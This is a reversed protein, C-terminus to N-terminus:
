PRAAAYPSQPSAIPVRRAILRSVRPRVGCLSGAAAPFPQQRYGRVRDHVALHTTARWSRPWIRVICSNRIHRSGYSFPGCNGRTTSIAGCAHPRPRNPGSGRGSPGSIITTRYPLAQPPADVYLGGPLGATRAQVQAICDRATRMPHKAANLRGLSQRYAPLPLASMVLVAVIVKTGMRGAGAALGFVVAILLPRFVGSSKFVDHTEITIRIPGRVLTVIAIGVATVAVTLLLVRVAPRRGAANTSTSLALPTNRLSQVIRNFPAAALM